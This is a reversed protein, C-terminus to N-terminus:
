RTLKSTLYTMSNIDFLTLGADRDNYTHALYAGTDIFIVNDVHFPRGGQCISHGCFVKSIGEV